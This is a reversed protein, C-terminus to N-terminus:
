YERDPHFALCELKRHNIDLLRKQMDDFIDSCEEEIFAREFYSFDEQAWKDELIYKTVSLLEERRVQHYEEYPHQMLQLMYDFVIEKRDQPLLSTM